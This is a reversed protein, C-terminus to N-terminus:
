HVRRWLKNFLIIFAFKVLVRQRWIRSPQRILRFLWELGMKQFIKPARTVKGSFVDFSGGVGIMIKTNIIDKHKYIWREQRPFGLGVLLIDPQADNIKSIIGADDEDKFYGHYNGAIKLGPFSATLKEAATDTVGPAAGLLYISRGSNRINDFIDTLLDIGPVRQTIPGDTFRSAYVIGIGDPIVLDASNLIHKFGADKRALMVMEPNPTFIVAPTGRELFSIATDCAEEPSINNFLVGLIKTRM